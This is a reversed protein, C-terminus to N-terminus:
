SAPLGSWSGPDLEGAAPEVDVVFGTLNSMGSVREISAAGHPRRAAARAIAARATTLM